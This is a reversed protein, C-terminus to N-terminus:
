NLAGDFTGVEEETLYHAWHGAENVFYTTRSFSSGDPLDVTVAVAYTPVGLGLDDPYADTVVYEAAASDLITNATVWEDETYYNQDAFSLLDYTKSYDGSQVYRYYDMAANAVADEETEGVAAPTASPSQTATASASPAAEASAAGNTSPQEEPEEARVEASQSGQQPATEERQTMDNAPATARQWSGAGEQLRTIGLSAAEPLRPCTKRYEEGPMNQQWEASTFNRTLRTCAEDGLDDSPRWIWARTVPGIAFLYRDDPGFVTDTISSSPGHAKRAVETGSAVDWVRATNDDSATALREGDPSFAIDWVSGGTSRQHSVRTAKSGENLAWVRATGGGEVLRNAAALFEGDPSFEVRVAGTTLLGSARALTERTERDLGSTDSPLFDGYAFRRVEEGSASNWLRITNDGSGTAVYRGDPSFAVDDVSGQHDLQSIERGSAVDWIRATNDVGGTVLQEGDPSIAVSMVNAGHAMSSVEEGSAPDWVRVTGDMGATALYRGDPSAAFANADTHVMQAFERGAVDWVRATNDDSATALYGGDPSFVAEKAADGHIARAVEEGGMFLDWVRATNDYSATSLYRGDPSFDVSSVLDEHEVRTIEDGSSVEWLRATKDDSATALHTGDPSFEIDLLSGEHSVQAVQERSDVNWVRATNAGAAPGSGAALYEGNPSFALVTPSGEGYDLSAVQDGSDPDWLGAASAHSIALRESDPSFEIDTVVDQDIEAIEDGTEPDWIRVPPDRDSNATALYKGNSSFAITWVGAQDLRSVEAGTAADWVRVDKDSATVLQNTNPSFGIDSIKGEHTVTAVGRGSFPDWVRATKGANTAALYTGDSNFVVKGLRHSSGYTSEFMDPEDEYTVTVVPRPLLDLGERLIREAESSHLPSQKEAEAAFLVSQQLSQPGQTASLQARAALQRGLAIEAQRNAENRQILFLLALIGAVVLGFTVAALTFRQRRTASRRSALIYETQLPTLKPEKEAVRAQWDEATQLDSGRLTFSNDRGSKDWEIARTLLRTHEHLWDLDTNFADVLGQFGEDFAEADHLFTWNRSALSEPVAKPDVERCVLPVLRKNHEVAHSLEQRCIKSVISDPSIVFVYADAGEIGSRVEEMWDATPPIDELDVWVDYDRKELAQNLRLVFERDKRSYSIFLDAM